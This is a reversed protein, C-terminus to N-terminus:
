RAEAPVAAFALAAACLAAKVIMLRMTREELPWGNEARLVPQLRKSAHYIHLFYLYLSLKLLNVLAKQSPNSKCVTYFRTM